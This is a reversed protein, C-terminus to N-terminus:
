IKIKMYIDNVFVPYGNNRESDITWVPLNRDRNLAEVLTTYKTFSEDVGDVFTLVGSNDEFIGTVEDM